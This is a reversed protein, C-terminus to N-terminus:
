DPFALRLQGQRELKLMQKQVLAPRDYRLHCVSCLAKLNEPRCDAPQHNLHATTLTFRGLKYVPILGFEETEEEVTLDAAWVTLEIREVLEGDHEGPRRCPRGCDQCIWDASTKVDLAIQQWNKPYLKRDMPM